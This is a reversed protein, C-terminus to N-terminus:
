AWQKRIFEGAQSVAQNAEPLYKVFLQWVHWMSKWEDLLVHNGAARYREAFRRSDDLLLEEKGVQVLAPPLGQLDDFLPSLQPLAKDRTGAYNEAMKALWPASLMCDKKENAKVSGGSLTLDLWPCLMVLSSPLPRKSDRISLATSLVLGGGASDGALAIKHPSFGRALLWDYCALVDELAAPFPHEPALRYNPTLVIAQSKASLREALLRSATSSGINYGGGHLYLIVFDSHASRHSIWDAQTEGIFVEKIRTFPSHFSLISLQDLRKRQEDVSIEPHLLKSIKYKVLLRVLSAQITSM